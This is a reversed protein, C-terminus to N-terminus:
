PRPEVVGIPATGAGGKPLALEVLTQEGPVSDIALDGGHLEALLRAIILGLGAGQQEYFRREFQMHAGISAVQEATMGRGRDRVRVVCSRETMRTQIWVPSGVRSFKFANDVLEEVAKRFREAAIVATGEELDLVLDGTRASAEAKEQATQTIIEAISTTPGKRLEAIRKPDSGILELESYIIFNFILRHLRLAAQQISRAFDRAEVGSPPTQEDLLVAALGLIGNLPTLLEHPLAMGISDRLETLKRDSVRQIAEKKALRVNVVNILENVTFPKTLYDDAGLGLGYRIHQQDRLATLFIFPITCTVPDQQLASLTQYGDMTPMQVDCVILDPLYKRAVELGERGDAASLAQYGRSQLAKVTLSQIAADDDIVLIKKM